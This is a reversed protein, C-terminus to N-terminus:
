GPFILWDFAIRNAASSLRLAQDSAVLRPFLRGEGVVLGNGLCVGTM